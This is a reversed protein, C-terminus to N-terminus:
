FSSLRKSMNGIFSGWQSCFTHPLAASLLVHVATLCHQQMEGSIFSSSLMRNMDLLVVDEAGLELVSGSRWSDVNYEELLKHEFSWADPNTFFSDLTSTSLTHSAWLIRAKVKGGEQGGKKAGGEEKEKEGEKEEEAKGEEGRGERGRGWKRFSSCEKTKVNRSGKGELGAFNSSQRPHEPIPLYLTSKLSCITNSSFFIILTKLM